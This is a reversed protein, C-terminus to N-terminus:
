LPRFPRAADSSRIWNKESCLWSNPPRPRLRRTTETPVPSFIETRSAQRCSSRRAPSSFFERYFFYFSWRWKPKTTRQDGNQTYNNHINNAPNEQFKNNNYSCITIQFQHLHSSLNIFSIEQHFLFSPGVVDPLDKLEIGRGFQRSRCVTRVLFRVVHHIQFKSTRVSTRKEHVNQICKKPVNIPSLVCM